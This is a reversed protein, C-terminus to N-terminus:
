WRFFRYPDDMEEPQDLYLGDLWRKESAKGDVPKKFRDLIPTAGAVGESALLRSLVFSARRYTRKVNVQKSYDLQWPELQCFIVNAGATKALVGDGLIDAGSTVLPLERPDRDHVDAPGIGAFPSAAPPPPFFCAIHEAKKMAVKFPLIAEAERQDLGVALIRGGTKVWAAIEAANGALQGGGGPGAILVQEPPLKGGEYSAVSVGKKGRGAVLEASRGQVSGGRGHSFGRDGRAGVHGRRVPVPRCRQVQRGVAPVGFGNADQEPVPGLDPCLVVFTPGGQVPRGHPVGGPRGHCEHSGDGVRTRPVIASARREMRSGLAAEGKLGPDGLRAPGGRVPGGM